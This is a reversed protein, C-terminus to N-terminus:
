VGLPALNRLMADDYVRRILASKELMRSQLERGLAFEYGAIREGRDLVAERCVFSPEEHAAASADKKLPKLPAVTNLQEFADQPSNDEATGSMLNRIKKFM